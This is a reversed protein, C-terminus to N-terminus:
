PAQEIFRHRPSRTHSRQGASSERCNVLPVRMKWSTHLNHLNFSFMKFLIHSLTLLPNFMYPFKVRYSKINLKHVIQTMKSVNTYWTTTAVYKLHSKIHKIFHKTRFKMRQRNVYPVTILRLDFYNRKQTVRYTQSDVLVTNCPIAVSLGYLFMETILLSRHQTVINSCPDRFDIFSPQKISIKVTCRQNCLKLFYM